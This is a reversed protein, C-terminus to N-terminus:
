VAHCATYGERAATRAFAPWRPADAGIDGSQVPTGGEYCEVTPGAANHLETLLLRGASKSSASIVDHEARPDELLLLAVDVTLLLSCGSTFSELFRSVEFDDALTDALTVFLSWATGDTSPMWVGRQDPM